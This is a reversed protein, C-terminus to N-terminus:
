IYITYLHSHKKGDLRLDRGAQLMRKRTTDQKNMLFIAYPIIEM